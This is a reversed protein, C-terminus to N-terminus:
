DTPPCSSARARKPNGTGHGDGAQGRQAGGQGRGARGLRGAPQRCAREPAVGPGISGPRPRDPQVLMAVGGGIGASVIAVAVAGATLAGARSRKQPVQPIACVPQSHRAATRITPRASSSSRRTVGTTHSSSTAGHRHQCRPIRAGRAAYSRRAPPGAATAAPLVEPPEDHRQTHEEKLYTGVDPVVFSARGCHGNPSLIWKSFKRCM